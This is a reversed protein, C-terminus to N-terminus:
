QNCYNAKIKPRTKPFMNSINQKSLLTQGRDLANENFQKIIQCLSWFSRVLLAAFQCNSRYTMMMMMMM